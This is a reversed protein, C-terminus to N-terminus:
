AAIGLNMFLCVQTSGPGEVEDIAPVEAGRGLVIVCMATIDLHGVSFAVTVSNLELVLV